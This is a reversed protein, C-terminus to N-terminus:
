RLCTQVYSSTSGRESREGSFPQIHGRDTSPHVQQLLLRIPAVVRSNQQNRQQFLGVRDYSPSSATDHGAFIQSFHYTPLWALYGVLPSTFKNTHLSTTTARHQPTPKPQLRARPFHQIRVTSWSRLSSNVQATHAFYPSSYCQISVKSPHRQLSTAGFQAPTHPARDLERHASAM